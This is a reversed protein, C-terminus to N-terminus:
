YTDGNQECSTKYSKQQKLIETLDYHNSTISLHSCVGNGCHMKKTVM